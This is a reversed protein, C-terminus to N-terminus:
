KAMKEEMQEFREFLRPAKERLEERSRYTRSMETDGDRTHVTIQGDLGVEFRTRPAPAERDLLTRLPGQLFRREWERWGEERKSDSRDPFPRVEPRPGEARPPREPTLPEKRRTSELLDAAERDAKRLAELNEYSKSEVQKGAEGGKSRTVTIRGTEDRRVELSNGDKDVRHFEIAERRQTARDDGKRDGLFFDFKRLVDRRDGPFEGLDEAIWGQPGWRLIKGRLGFEHASAVDPDEEYKLKLRAPDAPPKALRVTFSQEQGRHVVTLEIEEGPEKGRVRESFKQVADHGGAVPKGDARVIVDYRALGAKDAPSDEFVNCVMVGKDELRLHEALAAPVPCLQVGLWAKGAAVPPEVPAPLVQAFWRPRDPPLWREFLRDNPLVRREILRDKHEEIERRIRDKEKEIRDKQREVEERLRDATERAKREAREAAAGARDEQREREGVEREKKELAAPPAPQPEDDARAAVVWSAFVLGALLGISRLRIQRNM